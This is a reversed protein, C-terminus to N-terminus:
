QYQERPRISDSVVIAEIAKVSLMQHYIKCASSLFVIEGAQILNRLSSPYVSGAKLYFMQAKLNNVTCERCGQSTIIQTFWPSLKVERLMKTYGLYSLTKHMAKLQMTKNPTTILAHFYHQLQIFFIQQKHMHFRLDM